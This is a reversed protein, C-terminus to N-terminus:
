VSPLEIGSWWTPLLSPQPQWSVCDCSERSSASAMSVSGGHKPFMLPSLSPTLLVVPALATLAACSALEGPMAVEDTCPDQGLICVYISVNGSATQAAEIGEEQFPLM